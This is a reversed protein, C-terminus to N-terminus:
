TRVEVRSLPVQGWKVSSYASVNLYSTLHGLGWLNHTASGLPCVCTGRRLGLEESCLSDSRQPASRPLGGSRTVIGPNTVIVFSHHKSYESLLLSASKWQVNVKGLICLVNKFNSKFIM